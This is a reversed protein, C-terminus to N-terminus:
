VDPDVGASRAQREAPRRGHRVAAGDTEVHELLDVAQETM